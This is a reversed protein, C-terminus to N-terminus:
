VGREMDRLPIRESVREEEDLGPGERKLRGYRRESNEDGEDGKEGKGKGRGAYPTECERRRLAPYYRRYSAYAVGLGLLSGAMVDYPGHRYDELRSIAIMAAGLIPAM